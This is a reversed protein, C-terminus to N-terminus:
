GLELVCHHHCIIADLDERCAELVGGGELLLEGGHFGGLCISRGGLGPIEGDMALYEGEPTTDIGLATSEDVAPYGADSAIAQHDGTRWKQLLQLRELRSRLEFACCPQSEEDEDEAEDHRGPGIRFCCIYRVM